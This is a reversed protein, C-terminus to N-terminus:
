AMTSAPIPISTISLKQTNPPVNPNFYVAKQVPVSWLNGENKARVYLVNFGPTLGATIPSFSVDIVPAATILVNTAMNVGPDTNWFYELKVVNQGVMFFEHKPAYSWFGNASKARIFLRHHGQQVTSLDINAVIDISDNATIPIQTALGIGPDNDIFYELQVIDQGASPFKYFLHTKTLSWFGIQDRMRVGLVHIGHSVANLNVNFTQDILPNGTTTVSIGNNLGPDTDIYYEIKQTNALVNPNFYVTKQIPFTWMLSDDKARVYLVNVGPTLGSTVPAFVVDLTDNPTISVATAMGWGPDSNWFYEVYNINNQAYVGLAGMYVFLLLCVKKM